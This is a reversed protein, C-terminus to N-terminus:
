ALLEQFLYSPVGPPLAPEGPEPDRFRFVVPRYGRRRLVGLRTIMNETLFATIFIFTSGPMARSAERLMLDGLDVFSSAPQVDALTALITELHRPHASPRLSVGLTRRGGEPGVMANAYLGVAHKRTLLEKAMSAAMEIAGEVYEPDLGEWANISSALNLFLSVETQSVSEPQRVLLGEDLRASSRWDIQKFPDGPRWERLTRILTPDDLLSPSKTMGGSRMHRPVQRLQVLRPFALLGQDGPPREFARDVDGLGLPDWLRATVPGFLHRGRSAVKLKFRRRVMQRSGVGFYLSLLRRHPNSQHSLPITTPPAGEPWDDDILLFPIPLRGANGVELTMEVEEGPFARAPQVTQHFHLNRLGYHRYLSSVGLGLLLTIAGAVMLPSRSIFAVLVLFIIGLETVRRTVIM